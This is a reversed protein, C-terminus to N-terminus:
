APGGQTLLAHLARLMGRPTCPKAVFAVGSEGIERLAEVDGTYGSMLLIRLAPQAAALERALAYGNGDPLVLDSVVADLQPGLARAERSADAINGAAVVVYGHLELTRAFLARVASDDEVLLVRTPRPASLSAAEPEAAAASVQASLPLRVEFRTGRGPASELAITGRLGEVISRVTALGLGTGREKTTFFPEFIRARTAASMGAGSDEVEIVVYGHPAHEDGASAAELRTRVAIWGPGTIAERANVVLNMVVQELQGADAHLPAEGACPTVRLAIDERLLRALMKSLNVLLANLDLDRPAVIEKRSFALLQRTLAAAREASEQVVEADARRVDSEPLDELLFHASSLIATLINNFDHAVGGAVRGVVEMKQAHLLQAQLAHEQTTDRQVSVFHSINGAADLVPSIVVDAQYLSGDKRRSVVAGRFVEGCSLASWMAAYLAEDVLGTAFLPPLKGVVEARTWGTVQEFAPNVLIIRAAADTVVLVEAMQEIAALLRAREAEIRRLDTVDRMAAIICQRGQYAILHASFSALREQGDRMRMPAEFDSVHPTVALRDFLRARDVLSVWLGLATPRQGLAEERTYGTTRVFADNVAVYAGRDLDTMVMVDPSNDFATRALEEADRLAQEAMRRDHIDVWTGVYGLFDGHADFLPRSEALGWRVEGTATRVRVEASYPRRASFAQRWRDVIARQEDPHLLAGIQLSTVQEPTLDTLDRYAKNAFTLKGEADRRWTPIPLSDLVLQYFDRARKIEHEAAELARRGRERESVDVAVVLRAERGAYVLDSVTVEVEFREGGKTRHLLVTSHVPTPAPRRLHEEVGAIEDDPRLARVSMALLEDRTYGYRAVMAQNVAVIQFSARDWVFTPQPSQEFLLRYREEAARHQADVERRAQAEAAAELAFGLLEAVEDLMHVLAPEFPTADAACVTLVGLGRGEARLPTSVLAGLDHAAAREKWPQFSPSGETALLVVRHGERLATGFPGRGLPTDDWRVELDEVYGRAAGHCGAVAVSGDPECLGIWALAFGGQEVLLRCAEDRIQAPDRQQAVLRSITAQIRLLRNERVLKSSASVGAEGHWSTGVEGSTSADM